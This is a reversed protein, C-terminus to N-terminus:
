GCVRAGYKHAGLLIWQTFFLKRGDALRVAFRASRRQRVTYRQVLKHLRADAVKLRYTVPAVHRGDDPKLEGHVFFLCSHECLGQPGYGVLFSLSERAGNELV